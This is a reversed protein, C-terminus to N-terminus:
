CSCTTIGIARRRGAPLLDRFRAETEGPREYDWMANFDPLGTPSPPNMFDDQERLTEGDGGDAASQVRTRM